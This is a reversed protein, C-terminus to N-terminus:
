LTCERMSTGRPSDLAVDDYNYHLADWSNNWTNANMQVPVAEQEPGDTEPVRANIKQVRSQM